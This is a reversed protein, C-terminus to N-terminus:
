YLNSMKQSFKNYGLAIVALIVSTVLYVASGYGINIVSEDAFGPMFKKTLYSMVTNTQGGPAGNTLVLILDNEQLSGNIALLLMIQFIPAILPLTIKFFSQLGTAGDIEAAEYLDNDIGQLAALFYLMNTGFTKWISTFVIVWMANWKTSFWDFGDQHIGFKALLGNIYGFYDFMNSFILGAIAVSVVSPMYYLSRFFGSAKIRRNLLVALVLALPLEIPLKMIALQVTTIWSKWFAPDATFVNKFNELGIFKQTEEVGVYYYLSKSFVWLISYLTFVLFGIIQPSLMLYAFATKSSKIHKQSHTTNNQRSKLGLRTM